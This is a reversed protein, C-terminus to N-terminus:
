REISVKFGPRILKALAVELSARRVGFLLLPSTLRVLARAAPGVWWAEHVVINLANPADSACGVVFRPSNNKRM